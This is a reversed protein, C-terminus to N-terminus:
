RFKSKLKDIETEPIRKFIISPKNIKTGSFKNVEFDFNNESVNLMNQIQDCCDPMIPSCMISLCIIYHCLIGLTNSAYDKDIKIKIWPQEENIFINCKSSFELFNNTAEKMSVRTFNM